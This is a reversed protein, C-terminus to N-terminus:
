SIEGPQSRAPQLAGTAADVSCLAPPECSEAGQPPLLSANTPISSPARWARIRASLQWIPHLRRVITRSRDHLWAVCGICVADAPHLEFRVMNTVPFHRGCCHCPVWDRAATLANETM